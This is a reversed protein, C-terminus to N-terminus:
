LQPPEPERPTYEVQKAIDEVYTLSVKLVYTDGELYGDVIKEEIEAKPYDKALLADLEEFLRTKADDETLTVPYSNVEEFTRSETWLPLKMGFLEVQGESSHEDYNEYGPKESFYLPVTLGFIRLKNKSKSRGTKDRQEVTLPQKLYLTENMRAMVKANAGKLTTTGHRDTILGSVILEGEMVTDGVRLKAQGDYVEMSIIQGTRTAVVDRPDNEDVIEPPMVREKVEVLVRSGQQQIGAWALEPIEILLKQEVQRYDIQDSIAGIKVGNDTLFQSIREKPVTVNGTVDLDWIFISMVNIFVLVGVLGAFLGLRKRYRHILFPLGHKKQIRVRVGTKKAPARLKRYDRVRTKATLVQKSRHTDWVRVGNHSILNFFRETFAGTVTFTLYGWVWRLFRILFM